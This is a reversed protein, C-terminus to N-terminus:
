ERTLLIYFSNRIQVEAAASTQILNSSSQTQVLQGIAPSGGRELEAIREKAKKADATLTANADSMSRVHDKLSQLQVSSQQETFELEELRSRLVELEM